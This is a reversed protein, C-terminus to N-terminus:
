SSLGLNISLRQLKSTAPSAVLIISTIKKGCEGSRVGMGWRRGKALERTVISLAIISLLQLIFMLNIEVISCDLRTITPHTKKDIASRALHGAPDNMCGRLDLMSTSM